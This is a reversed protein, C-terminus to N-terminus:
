LEDNQGYKMTKYDIEADRKKDSKETSQLVNNILVNCSRKYFAAKLM